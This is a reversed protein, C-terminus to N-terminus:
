KIKEIKSKDKIRDTYLIGELHDIEHQFIISTFGSITDRINKKNLLDYKIIITDSRNVFGRYGPISLCGERGESITKSYYVIKSNLYVEFPKKTKDFRQVWIIRKNIGIQPAAIGVGPNNPDKVTAYMREILLKLHKNTSDAKIKKSKKYLLISDVSNSVLMVPMINDKTENAIISKEKATFKNISCSSLSIVFFILISIKLINIQKFRLLYNINQFDIFMDKRAVKKQIASLVFIKDAFLKSQKKKM